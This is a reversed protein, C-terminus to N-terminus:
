VTTGPRVSVPTCRARHDPGRPLFTPTQAGADGCPCEQETGPAEPQGCGGGAGLAKPVPILAGRPMRPPQSPPSGTEQGRQRVRGGATCSAFGGGERTKCPLHPGQLASAQPQELSWVPSVRKQEAVEQM